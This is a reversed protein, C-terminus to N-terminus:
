SQPEKNEEQQFNMSSASDYAQYYAPATHMLTTVALTTKGVMLM